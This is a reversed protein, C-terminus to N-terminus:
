EDGDDDQYAWEDDTCDWEGDILGQRIAKALENGPDAIIAV